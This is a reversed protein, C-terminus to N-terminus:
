PPAIEVLQGGDDRFEDVEEEVVVQRQGFDIGNTRRSSPPKM